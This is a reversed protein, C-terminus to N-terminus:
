TAKQMYNMPDTRELMSECRARIIADFNAQMQAHRQGPLIWFRDSRIGDLVYEAVEKAEVRERPNGSANMRQLLEDYTLPPQAQAARSEDTAYESQRNRNSSFLGTNITGPPVLVSASIRSGANRLQGYLCEALSLDAAKTMNYIAGNPTPAIVGVSSSTIVVHGEEGHDVMAPVLAKIGHIVGWVNVALGWQWDKLDLEWM